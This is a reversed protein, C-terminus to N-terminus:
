GTHIVQPQWATSATSIATGGTLRDNTILWTDVEGTNTNRWLV